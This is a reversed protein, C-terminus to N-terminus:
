YASASHDRCRRKEAAKKGNKVIRTVPCLGNWDNRRAKNEAAIIKKQRRDVNKIKMFIWGKMKLIIELNALGCFRVTIVGIIVTKILM